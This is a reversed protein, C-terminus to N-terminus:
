HGMSCCRWIQGQAEFSKFLSFLKLKYSTMHPRTCREGVKNSLGPGLLACRLLSLLSARPSAASATLASSASNGGSNGDQTKAGRCLLSLVLGKWKSVAGCLHVHGAIFCCGRRATSCVGAGQRKRVKVSGEHAPCATKWGPLEQQILFM